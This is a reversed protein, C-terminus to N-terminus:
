IFAKSHSARHATRNMLKTSLKIMLKITQPTTRRNLIGTLLKSNQVHHRRYVSGSHAKYFQFTSSKYIFYSKVPPMNPWQHRTGRLQFDYNHYIHVNEKIGERFMTWALADGSETGPEQALAAVTRPSLTSTWINLGSLMGKYAKGSFIRLSQVIGRFKGFVGLTVFFGLNIFNGLVAFKIFFIEYNKCRLSFHYSALLSM